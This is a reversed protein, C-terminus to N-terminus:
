YKFNLYIFNSVVLVFYTECKNNIMLLHITTVVVIYVIYMITYFLKLGLHRM